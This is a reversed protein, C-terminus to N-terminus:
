LKGQEELELLEAFAYLAESTLPGASGATVYGFGKGDGAPGYTHAKTADYTFLNESRSIGDPLVTEPPGAIVRMRSRPLDQAEATGVMKVRTYGYNNVPEIIVVGVEKNDVRVVAGEVFGYM